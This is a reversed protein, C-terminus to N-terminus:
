AKEYLRNDLVRKELMASQVLELYSPFGQRFCYLQQVPDWRGILEQYPSVLGIFPARILFHYGVIQDIAKQDLHNEKCEIMMLVSLLHEPHIGRAFCVIDLRRDPVADLAGGIQQLEKEVALLEKPFGLEQILRRLCAQRVIEEPSARVWIKRVEDFIQRKSPTAVSLNQRNKPSKSGFKSEKEPPLILM